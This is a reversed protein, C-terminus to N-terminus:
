YYINTVNSVRMTNIMIKSVHGDPHVFNAYNNHRWRVYGRNSTVGALQDENHEAWLATSPDIINNRSSKYFTWWLWYGSPYYLSYYAADGDVQCADGAMVVETPFLVKGQKLLGNHPAGDNGKLIGRNAGYAPIPTRADRYTASPCEFVSSINSSSNNDIAPKKGDLYSDLMGLWTVPGASTFGASKQSPPYYEYDLTYMNVALGITKLKSACSIAKATERAKGLAPLLMSALIAIIAIVVLLEILTFDRKQWIRVLKWKKLITNTSKM